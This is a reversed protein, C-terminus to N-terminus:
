IYTDDDAPALGSTAFLSFTDTSNDFRAELLDKQRINNWGSGFMVRRNTSYTFSQAISAVYLRVFKPVSVRPIFGLDPHDKWVSAAVAKEQLEPPISVINKVETSLAVMLLPLCSSPDHTCAFWLGTRLAFETSLVDLVSCAVLLEGKNIQEVVRVGQEEVLVKKSHLCREAGLVVCVLLLLLLLVGKM